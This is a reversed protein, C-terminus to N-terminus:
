YNDLTNKLLGIFVNYCYEILQIKSMFLTDYGDRNHKEFLSIIIRIVYRTKPFNKETLLLTKKLYKDDKIIKIKKDNSLERFLM